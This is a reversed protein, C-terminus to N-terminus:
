FKFRSISEQLDEALKSLGESAESMQAISATQEEVSASAEETSAANEQSISSLNEIVNIILSKKVTMDETSVNLQKVVERVKEIAESIGEFKHHTNDLSMMQEGVISSAKDMTKVGKETMNSLEAITDSIQSAFDNTEEALKRIEEAVVAFGKGAEGARAAEISANLALLNTQEAIGKIMDSASEIKDANKDTEIIIEQVEKAANNNENTKEELEELVAFGEEKIQNVEKASDNLIKILKIESNIIDGLVNVEEAGETTEKAQSTAGSAIEEITRAIEESATASQQSMATLEESSSSVQQSADAVSEIIERFNGEMKAVAQTIRGIEDKRKMYKVAESDADFRLDYNAIKEIIIVLNEIPTTIRKTFFLVLLSSILLTIISTLYLKNMFTELNTFYENTPIVAVIIYDEYKSFNLLKENDGDLTYYRYGEDEQLLESGWPFLDKMNKGLMESNPNSLINGELDLLTIYGNKGFTKTEALNKINIRDILEQLESPEVGIQVIGTKDKRAVGIYQFLVQDSGRPQPEQALTFEENKLAELFPQTQKSENFDFGIFDSINSWQLIGDSNVVHIESVGLYNAMKSLEQNLQDEPINRINREVMKSTMVLYKNIADKTIKVNQERDDITNKIEEIEVAGQEQMMDKLISKQTFYSITGVSLIAMLVIILSVSLFKALIGKFGSRLKKV